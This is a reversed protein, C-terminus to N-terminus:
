GLADVVTIGDAFGVISTKKKKKKSFFPWLLHNGGSLQSMLASVRM